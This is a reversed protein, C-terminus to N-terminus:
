EVAEPFTFAYVRGELAIYGPAKTQQRPNKGNEGKLIGIEKLERLMARQNFGLAERTKKPDLYYTVRGTQSAVKHGFPASEISRSRRTGKIKGCKISDANQRIVSRIADEPSVQQYKLMSGSVMKFVHLASRKPDAFSRPFIEWEKALVMAAYTIGFIDVIREAPNDFESVLERFEAILSDIRAKFSRDSKICAKSIKEVFARGATEYQQDARKRLYDAAERTSGFGEPVDSIIPEDLEISIVRSRAAEITDPDGRYRDAFPKNGTTLMATRVPTKIGVDGFRARDDTASQLFLIEAEKMLGSDQVNSEDLFLLGHNFNPRMAIFAQKTMNWSRGYGHISGPEGGWESAVATSAISKGSQAKGILELNPNILNPPAKALLPGVLGYGFLFTAIKNEPLVKSVGRKWASLTGKSGGRYDPQFAVILPKRLKNASTVDGNAHVYVNQSVWGPQTAVLGDEYKAFSQIRQKLEAKSGSAIFPYGTANTIKLFTTQEETMLDISSLWINANAKRYGILYHNTGGAKVAKLIKPPRKTLNSKTKERIVM